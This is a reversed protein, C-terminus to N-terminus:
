QVFRDVLNHPVPLEFTTALRSLVLAFPGPVDAAAVPAAAVPEVVNKPTVACSAITAMFLVRYM